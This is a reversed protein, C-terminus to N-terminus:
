VEENKRKSKFIIWERGIQWRINRQEDEDWEPASYYDYEKVYHVSKPWMTIKTNMGLSNM